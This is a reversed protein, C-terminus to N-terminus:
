YAINYKNRGVSITSLIWITGLENGSVHVVPRQLTAQDNEHLRKYIYRLLVIVQKHVQIAWYEVDEISSSTRSSGVSGVLFSGM